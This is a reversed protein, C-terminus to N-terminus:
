LTLPDPLKLNEASRLISGWGAMAPHYGQKVRSREIVEDWLKMRSKTNLKTPNDASLSGPPKAGRRVDASAFVKECEDGGYHKAPDEAFASLSYPMLTFPVHCKRSSETFM